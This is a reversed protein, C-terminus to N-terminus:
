QFCTVINYTGTQWFINLISQNSPILLHFCSIIHHIMWYLLLVTPLVLLVKVANIQRTQSLSVTVFDFISHWSYPPPLISSSCPPSPSFVGFQVCVESFGGSTTKLSSTFVLIFCSSIVLAAMDEFVAYFIMRSFVRLLYCELHTCYLVMLWCKFALNKLWDLNLWHPLIM